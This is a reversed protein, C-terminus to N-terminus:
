KLSFEENVPKSFKVKVRKMEKEIASFIADIDKSNYEYMATNACNGLVRLKELVSKTRATAL